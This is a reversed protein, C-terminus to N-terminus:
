RNDKISLPNVFNFKQKLESIKGGGQIHEAIAKKDALMKKFIAAGKSNTSSKITSTKKM